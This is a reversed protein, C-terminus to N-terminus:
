AGVEVVVVRDQQLRQGVPEGLREGLPQVLPDALLQPAVRGVLVEVVHAQDLLLVVADPGGRAIGRAGLVGLLLREPLQEVDLVCVPM